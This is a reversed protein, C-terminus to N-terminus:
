VLKIVLKASLEIILCVCFWVGSVIQLCIGVSVGCNDIATVFVIIILLVVTLCVWLVVQM